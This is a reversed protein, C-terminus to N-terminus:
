ALSMASSLSPFGAAAYVSRHRKGKGETWLTEMNM